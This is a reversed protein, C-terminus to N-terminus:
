GIGGSAVRRQDHRPAGRAAATIPKVTQGILSSCHAFKWRSELLEWSGTAPRYGSDVTTKLNRLQLRKRSLM